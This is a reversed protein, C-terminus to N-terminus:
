NLRELQGAGGLDLCVGHLLLVLLLVLELPGRHPSHRRQHRNRTGVLMRLELLKKVLDLCCRLQAVDEVRDLLVRSVVGVLHVETSPTAATICTLDCINKSQEDYKWLPNENWPVTLGISHPTIPWVRVWKVRFKLSLSTLTLHFYIRHLDSRAFFSHNVNLFQTDKDGRVEM